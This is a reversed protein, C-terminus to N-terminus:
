EVIQLAYKRWDKLQVHPLEPFAAGSAGYWELWAPIEPALVRIFWEEEYINKKDGQQEFIDIACNYNHASEGYKAKSAGRLQAEEQDQEGRGACAIHAEPHKQQFEKFWKRLGDHFGIYRDFIKDCGPCNGNNPHIM